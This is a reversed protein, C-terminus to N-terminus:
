FTFAGRGAVDVNFIEELKEQASLGHLWPAAQFDDGLEGEEEDSDDWFFEDPRGEFPDGDSDDSDLDNNTGGDSGSDGFDQPEPGYFEDITMESDHGPTLAPSRGVSLEEDNSRTSISATPSTSTNQRDLELVELRLQRQRQKRQNHEQAVQVYKTTTAGRLHRRM